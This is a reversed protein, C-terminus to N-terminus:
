RKISNNSLPIMELKKAADKGYVARVMVIAAPKVLEEGIEL